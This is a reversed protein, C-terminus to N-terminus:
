SNGYPAVVQIAGDIIALSKINMGDQSFQLRIQRLLANNDTDKLYNMLGVGALPFQKYEGPQAFLLARQNQQTSDGRVLDGEASIQLDGTVPDVLYDIM